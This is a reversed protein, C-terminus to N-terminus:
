CKTARLFIPQMRSPASKARQYNRKISAHSSLIREKVVEIAELVKSLGAGEFILKANTKSSELLYFCCKDGSIHKRKQWETDLPCVPANCKIFKSCQNPCLSNTLSNQNSATSQIFIIMSKGSELYLFVRMSRTTDKYQM